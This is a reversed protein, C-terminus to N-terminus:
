KAAKKVVKKITAKATTKKEPKITTVKKTEKKETAKKEAVKKEKVPINMYATIIKEAVAVADQIDCYVDVAVLRKEEGRKKEVPRVDLDKDLFDRVSLSLAFRVRNKGVLYCGFLNKETNARYFHIYRFDNESLAKPDKMNTDAVVDVTKNSKFAAEIGAALQKYDVKAAKTEVVAEQKSM